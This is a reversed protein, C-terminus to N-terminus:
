PKLFDLEGIRCMPGLDCYLCSTHVSVPSVAAVGQRVEDALLEIKGKWLHIVEDLSKFHEMVSRSTEPGRAGPILQEDAAVGLYQVRGKKVQGFVVGAVVGAAENEKVVSYLPLQPEAIRDTFWDAVKPEGTKYDVIVLRGDDLRDIRDAYTKLEIGAITCVLKEEQGIVTFSSRRADVSLFATVLQNLREKELQTFRHTFARPHKEAMASVAAGVAKSVAASLEDESLKKLADLSRIDKWFLELSHHVLSGRDRANLGSEPRELAKARLRHAAFASFPCAAQAKLLGTGGSIRSKADAAPGYSDTIQEFYATNLMQAHRNEKGPVMSVNELHAILPSPFLETDKDKIPSSVTVHDASTLLRRTLRRAYALEREPSAHPVNYKKQVGIPLFPSPSPAAPWSEADLGLIWAYDFREGAVELMGMIQVPVDDTEPQFTKGSINQTLLRVASHLDLRGCVTDLASFGQLTEHWAHVAQFEESTLKRGRNWGISKLLDDFSRGWGSPLQKGPLENIVSKFAKLRKNLEPCFVGTHRDKDKRAKSFYLMGAVTLDTEGNERIRADLMARVSMETDAGGVFPSRLLLSYEDVFLPRCAFNLIMVATRVVPYGALSMGLSINYARKTHSVSSLVMSPHLVDDFIRILTPRLTNIDQVIIGIRASPNEELCTRTWKAACVIEAQTDAPEVRRAVSLVETGAQDDIAFVRCGLDEMVKVLTKQQPSLEDFGAMILQDPVPISGSIFLQIVADPLGATDLWNNDTCKREFNSAWELFAKTDEPPAQSLEHESLHWQKCLAWAQAAAKATEPIRLLIGASESANIVQEWVVIEQVSSLRIRLNGSMEKGVPYRAQDYTRGLWSNYPLIDPTEWVTKGADVQQRNFRNTLYRSLRQNVTVMVAKNELLQRVKADSLSNM